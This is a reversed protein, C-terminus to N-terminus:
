AKEEPSVYRRYYDMFKPISIVYVRKTVGGIKRNVWEVGIRGLRRTLWNKNRLESFEDQKKFYRFVEETPVELVEGKPTKTTGEDLFRKMVILMKLFDNDVEERRRRETVSEKQFAYVEESVNLREGGSSLDVLFGVPLPPTWLDATRGRLGNNRIEQALEPLNRALQPGYNLGFNYLDDRLDAQFALTAEDEQYDEVQESPLYRVGSITITRDRLVHDLDDIGGLFKPSYTPYTRLVHNEYRVVAGSKCFGSKLIRAIMSNKRLHDVEDLFLTSGNANIERVLAAATVDVVVHGNFALPAMIDMLLSKASEKEGFIHLYPFYRFLRFVYTAMVYLALVTYAKHDKLFVHRKLYARTKEFIELPDAKYGNLYKRIGESRFRFTSVDWTKPRYGHRPLEEFAILDKGSTLLCPKEQTGVAYSFVGGVYDQALCIDIERRQDLLQSLLSPDIGSGARGLAQSDLRAQTPQQEYSSRHTAAALDLPMSTDLTLTNGMLEALIRSLHPLVLKLDKASFHTQGRVQSSIASVIEQYEPREFSDKTLQLLQKVANCDDSMYASLLSRIAQEQSDISQSM